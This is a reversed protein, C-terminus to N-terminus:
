TLWYTLWGTLCLDASTDLTIETQREPTSELQTAKTESAMANM